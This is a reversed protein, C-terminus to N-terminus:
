YRTIGIHEKALLAIPDQGAGSRAVRNIKKGFFMKLVRKKQVRDWFPVKLLNGVFHYVNESKSDPACSGTDQRPKNYASGDPLCARFLWPGHVIVTYVCAVGSPLEACPARSVPCPSRAVAWVCYDVSGSRATM